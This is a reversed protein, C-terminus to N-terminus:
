SRSRGMSTVFPTAARHPRVGLAHQGDAVRVEEGGLLSGSGSPGFAVTEPGERRQVVREDNTQEGTAVVVVPHTGVRQRRERRAAAGHPRERVM